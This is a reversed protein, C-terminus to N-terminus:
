TGQRAYFHRYSSGDLLVYDLLADLELIVLITAELDAGFGTTWVQGQLKFSSSQVRQSNLRPSIRKDPRPFM